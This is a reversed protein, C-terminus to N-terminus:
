CKHDLANRVKVGRSHQTTRRAAARKMDVSLQRLPALVGVRCGLGKLRQAGPQKIDGLGSVHLFDDQRRTAAQRGHRALV